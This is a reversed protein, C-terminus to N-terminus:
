NNKLNLNRGLFVGEKFKHNAKSFFMIGPSYLFISELIILKEITISLFIKLFLESLYIKGIEVNETNKSLCLILM